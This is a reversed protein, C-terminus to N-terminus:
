RGFISRILQWWPMSSGGGSSSSRSSSSSSSQSNKSSSSPSGSSNSASRSGSQGPLQFVPFGRQGQQGQQRMQGQQGRQGLQGHSIEQGLSVGQKGQQGEQGGQGMVDAGVAMVSAGDGSGDNKDFLDYTFEYITVDSSGLSPRLSIVEERVVMLRDKWRIAENYDDLPGFYYDLDDHNYNIYFGEEDPFYGTVDVGPYQRTFEDASLRAADDIAEVPLVLAKAALFPGCSVLAVFTCVTTVLLRAPTQKM